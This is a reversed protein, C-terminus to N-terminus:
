SRAGHAPLETPHQPAPLEGTPAYRAARNDAEHIAQDADLHHKMALERSSLDHRQSLLYPTEQRQQRKRRLICWAGVVLISIAAIGGLVGGVIAGTPTSSGGTSPTNTAAPPSTNSSTASVTSSSASPQGAQVTSLSEEGGSYVFGPSACGHTGRINYGPLGHECCFYGENDFLDWTANACKPEPLLASTCSINEPSCCAFNQQSPCELGTPCCLRFPTRTQGCDVEYGGALCSGNRRIAFGPNIAM